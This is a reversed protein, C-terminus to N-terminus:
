DVACGIAKPLLSWGDQGVCGKECPVEIEVYEIERVVSESPQSQNSDFRAVRVAKPPNYEIFETQVACRFWRSEGASRNYRFYQHGDTTYAVASADVLAIAIPVTASYITSGDRQLWAFSRWSSASADRKYFQVFLTNDALWVYYSTQGNAIEFAVTTKRTELDYVNLRYRPYEVDFYAVTRRDPSLSPAGYETLSRTLEKVPPRTDRLGIYGEALRPIFSFKTTKRYVEIFPADKLTSARPPNKYVVERQYDLTLPRFGDDGGAAQATIGICVVALGLWRGLEKLRTRLLM